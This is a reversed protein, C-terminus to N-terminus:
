LAVASTGSLWIKREKKEEIGINKDHSAESVESSVTANKLQTLVMWWQLDPYM